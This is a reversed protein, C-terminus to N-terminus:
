NQSPSAANQALWLSLSAIDKDSLHEHGAMDSNPIGFKIIQAFHDVQVPQPRSTRNPSPPRAALVAPSEIFQSQWKLRTRGNPDHCTACYRRYLQPGSAANASALIDAPPRWQQEGANHQATEPARLSALYAVLDNGRRNRFLFAYSPMNSSGSVERPNYLHMKLWLASRRVGVQSLDPAPRVDQAHCRTCRESVYVLRGREIASASAAVPTVPQILYVALAFFVAGTLVIVYDCLQDQMVSEVFSSARCCPSHLQRNNIEPSSCSAVDIMMIMPMSSPKGIERTIYSDSTPHIAAAFNFISYM